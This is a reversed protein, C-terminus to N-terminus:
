TDLAKPLIADVEVTFIGCLGNMEIAQNESITLRGNGSAALISISILLGLQGCDPRETESSLLM